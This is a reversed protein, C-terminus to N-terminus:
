SQDAHDEDSREGVIVVKQKASFEQPVYREVKYDRQIHKM